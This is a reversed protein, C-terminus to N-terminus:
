RSIQRQKSGEAAATEGETAAGGDGGRQRRGEAAAEGRGDKRETTRGYRCLLHALGEDCEILKTTALGRSVIVYSISVWDDSVLM